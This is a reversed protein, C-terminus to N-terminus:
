INENGAEMINCLKIVRNPTKDFLRSDMLIDVAKKYNKDRITDVFYKKDRIGGCFPAYIKEEMERLGCQFVLCILVIKINGPAKNFYDKRELQNICFDIDNEFLYEASQKSLEIKVSLFTGEQGDDLFEKIEKPSIGNNVWKTVISEIERFPGFFLNPRSDIIHKVEDYTLGKAELNRGYGITWKGAPCKYPKLRFGEFKKLLEKSKQKIPQM